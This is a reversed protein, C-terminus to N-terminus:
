SIELVIVEAWQSKVITVEQPRLLNELIKCKLSKVTSGEACGALFPFQSAATLKVMVQKNSSVIKYCECGWQSRKDAIYIVDQKM